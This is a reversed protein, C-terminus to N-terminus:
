MVLARRQGAHTHVTGGKQLAVLRAMAGAGCCCLLIFGHTSCLLVAKNTTAVLPASCVWVLGYFSPSRVARTSSRGPQEGVSAVCTM